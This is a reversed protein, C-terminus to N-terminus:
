DTKKWTQMRAALEGVAALRAGATAAVGAARTHAAAAAEAFGAVPGIRRRAAGTDRAAGSVVTTARRERGVPTQGATEPSRRPYGTPTKWVVTERSTAFSLGM